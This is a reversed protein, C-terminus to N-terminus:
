TTQALLSLILFLLHNCGTGYLPPNSCTVNLGPENRNCLAYQWCVTGLNYKEIQFPLYLRMTVSATVLEDGGDCGMTISRNSQSDLSEISSSRVLSVMTGGVLCMSDDGLDDKGARAYEPSGECLGITLGRRRLFISLLRGLCAGRVGEGGGAQGEVFRALDQIYLRGLSPLRVHLIDRRPKLSEKIHIIRFFSATEIQLTLHQSRPLPDLRLHSLGLSRLRPVFLDPFPPFRLDVLVPLRVTSIPSTSKSLALPRSSGIRGTEGLCPVFAQSNIQLGGDESGRLGADFVVLHPALLKIEGADAQRQLGTEIEGCEVLAAFAKNYLLMKM